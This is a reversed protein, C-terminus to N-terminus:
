QVTGANHITVRAPSWQPMWTRESMGAVKSARARWSDAGYFPASEQDPGAPRCDSGCAVITPRPLEYENVPDRARAFGDVALM